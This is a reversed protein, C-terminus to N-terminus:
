RMETIQVFTNIIIVFRDVRLFYGCRTCKKRVISFAFNKTDNLVEAEIFYYEHSMHGTVSHRLGVSIHKSNAASICICTDPASIILSVRRVGHPVSGANREENEGSLKLQFYETVYTAVYRLTAFIIARRRKTQAKFTTYTGCLRFVYKIAIQKQCRIQRKKKKKWVIHM